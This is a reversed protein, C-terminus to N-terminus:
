LSSKEYNVSPSSSGQSGESLKIVEVSAAPQDVGNKVSETSPQPLQGTRPEVYSEDTDSM